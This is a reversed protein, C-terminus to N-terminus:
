DFKPRNDPRPAKPNAVPDFTQRVVATKIDVEFRAGISDEIEIRGGDSALQMRRFWRVPSGAPSKPDYPNAYLRVEWLRTGNKADTALLWGGREADARRQRALDQEYRVGAHELPPVDPASPQSSSLPSSMPSDKGPMPQAQCGAAAGVLAASTALWVRRKM